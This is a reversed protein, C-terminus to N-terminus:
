RTVEGAFLATIEAHIQDDTFSNMEMAGDACQAVCAGCGQCVGPLVAAVKRGMYEEEEVAAFFCVEMCDM